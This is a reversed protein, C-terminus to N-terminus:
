FRTGFSFRFLRPRDFPERLYPQAVDVRIPGFPSKWSVGLGGSARLTSADGIQATSATSSSLNDVGFSTGVDTFARGTIGLERPLGLPFALEVTGVYYQNAGLAENTARDHPGAGGIDFGRFNDGGLFFRDNIRVVDDNLATIYGGEARLSLVVEPQIPIYYGGRVRLRGYYVQGGLGAFDGGISAFYGDTPEVRSDLAEYILDSGVISSLREGAQDLIFISAAPSINTISDQRLTYRWVNRLNETLFYGASLSGGTTRQDFVSTDLVDRTIRFLDVTGAIERNFLYPETFSIDFEQRREAGTVAVRLDQGRGLLNRERISVQGLVGDTTSFGAGIQLEGTSQEEVKAQIVTRDPASGTTNTVEVKKFFQLDKLRQESRKLKSTNFADGEVLRFERRIVSDLTRVNGSIDIREVYVKPGEKVTFAVDLVREGSRRTIDPQVEVFAYGLNGAVDSLLKVVGEIEEANYWQDKFGGVAQNLLAPDLNKIQSKVSVDGFKYREGESLTFTLYFCSQDPALEAASSLVQFDAYGNRLYFRRMLERDYTVRDPDYNDDSSLFRYFRTEKTQIEGRLASDGFRENGIFSIKCVGTVSGENIEFVLDVRNQPLQIIKPEVTAAFRGGRRYLELIRRVDSQVKSRTFVTRSKSQIEDELKNAELRKNGEFVVRNILPNEVVRVVLTNGDRRITVDAFLGTAFLAKLSRDIQDASFVDKIQLTLYSRVTEPEIREAGDIRIQEIRDGAPSVAPPQASPPQAQALARPVGDLMSGAAGAVALAIAMAIRRM